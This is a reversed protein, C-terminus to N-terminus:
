SAAEVIEASTVTSSTAGSHEIDLEISSDANMHVRASAYIGVRPGNPEEDICYTITVAEDGNENAGSMVYCDKDADLIPDSWELHVGNLVDRVLPHLRVQRMDRRMQYGLMLSLLKQRETDSASMGAEKLPGKDPSM